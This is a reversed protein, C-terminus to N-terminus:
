RWTGDPNVLVEGTTTTLKVNNNHLTDLERRVEDLPKEVDARPEVDIVVERIVMKCDDRLVACIRSISGITDGVAYELAHYIEGNTLVEMAEKIEWGYNGDTGGDERSHTSSEDVTGNDDIHECTFRYM